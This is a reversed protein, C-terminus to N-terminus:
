PPTPRANRLAFDLDSLGLIMEIKEKWYSYNSGDLPKINGLHSLV